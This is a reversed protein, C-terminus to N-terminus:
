AKATKKAAPKKAAAEAKAAAPKKAAAKAPAAAAETAPEDSTEKPEAAAEKSAKGPKAAKTPKGKGKGKVEEEDEVVAGANKTYIVHDSHTAVARIHNGKALERIARRALSGNIKYQEVLNYVTVVKMKKPVEKLLKDFLAKNFVVRYNKKERLKGKSWKKKGKSKSASSAAM